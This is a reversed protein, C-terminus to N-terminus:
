PLAPAYGEFTVGDAVDRAIKEESASRVTWCLVPTGKEKLETVRRNHLDQHDHSIFTAGAADFFAIERLAARTQPTLDPADDEEFACTTLGRPVGPALRGFAMIMEPDFSMVAVAGKYGKLADAVAAELKGRDERQRKMEILLPKEGHVDSLVEGLTSIGDIGNKLMLGGLAAAEQARVPGTGDTMRDLTDDHFVMALGDASLQVDLEIAYGMVMAARFAARSNEPIGSAADHYGRHAIPLRTFAEPLPPTM